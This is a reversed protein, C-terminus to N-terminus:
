EFDEENCGMCVIKETVIRKGMKTGRIDRIWKSKILKGTPEGHATQKGCIPCRIM